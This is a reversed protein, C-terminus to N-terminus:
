EKEKKIREVEEDSLNGNLDYTKRLLKDYYERSDDEGIKFYSKKMNLTNFNAFETIQMILLDGDSQKNNMLIWRHRNLCYAIFDIFQMLPDSQSDIYKLESNVAFDKIEVSKQTTNPKQKGNDVYIELPLKYKTFVPNNKLRILLLWLCLQANDSFDFGSLKLHKFESMENRIIDDDNLSQIIIPCNYNKYIQAFHQFIGIRFNVPVKKFDNKGSYIDTFHFEKINWKESINNKLALILQSIETRETPKLVVAVWSKWNGPDYKSKSEQPTGTDDIYIATKM